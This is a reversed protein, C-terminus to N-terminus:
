PFNSTLVTSTCLGGIIACDVLLITNGTAIGMRMILGIVARALV